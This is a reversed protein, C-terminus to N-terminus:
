TSDASTGKEAKASAVPSPCNHEGAAEPDAAVVRPSVATGALLERERSGIARALAFVEDLNQQRVDVLGHEVVDERDPEALKLLERHQFVRVGRRRGGQADRWGAKSEAARAWRRLGQRIYDADISLFECINEFAFPPNRDASMVWNEAERFLRRGRSDTASLNKQLCNIADELVAIILRREGGHAERGRLARFFQAPLVVDPELPGGQRENCSVPEREDM